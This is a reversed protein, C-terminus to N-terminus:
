VHAMHEFARKRAGELGFNKPQTRRLYDLLAAKKRAYEDGTCDLAEALQNHLMQRLPNM